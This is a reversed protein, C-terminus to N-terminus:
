DLPIESVKVTDPEDIRNIVELEEKPLNKVLMRINDVACEFQEMYADRNSCLFSVLPCITEKKLYIEIKGDKVEFTFPGARCTEPKISNIRCKGDVLFICSGDDRAGMRQYGVFEHFGDYGVTRAIIARREETLPPHVDICCGGGCKMCIRTMEEEFSPM